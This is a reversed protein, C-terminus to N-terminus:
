ATWRRQFTLWELLLLGLALVILVRWWPTAHHAEVAPLPAGAPTRGFVDARPAIAGAFTHPGQAISVGASLGGRSALRDLARLVLLPFAARLPLDSERLDFALALFPVGARAGEVILPVRLGHQLSSEAIALDGPELKLTVARAVNVDGLALERLLPHQKDIREFFPREVLAARALPLAGEGLPGLYLAAVDVPAKPLVGDFIVVDFGAAGVFAAPDLVSVDLSDDLLLAADLYRDDRSVALVRTRPRAPLAVSARDDSALADPGSALTLEATLRAGGSPLDALTRTLSELPELTLSEEYLLGGAAVVRLTLPERRAGFNHLALLSEQHTPDLPYRRLAFRTIAVNRTSHGISVHRLQIEPHTALARRAQAVHELNGDSFLVLQPSPLPSLLDIALASAPLLDGPEGSQAIADLARLVRAREPTFSTLAVSGRDVAVLAVNDSPPLAEIWARAAAKTATLRSPAVDHAAMSASRDIAILVNHAAADASPVPDALAFILTLAIALALWFPPATLARRRPALSREAEPLLAEWLALAPVVVRTPPRRQLYLWLIIGCAVLLTLALTLADLGLLRM